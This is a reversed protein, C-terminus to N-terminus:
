EVLERQARLAGLVPLLPMGLVTFFDGEVKEFLQVGPGEIRFVGVCYGVAPWEAELYEGIFADSLERWYLRAVDRHQWEIKGDRALTAASHLEMVQGSFYKLHEVANERSVPKDFRRPGVTVLSDSGLVLRGPHNDSVTLAKADALAQATPGPAGHDLRNELAREDIDAPVAEFAVGAQRLMQQRSGSKSALIIM